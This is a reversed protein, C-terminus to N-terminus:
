SGIAQRIIEALKNLRYPKPLFLVQRSQIQTVDNAYGSTFVVKIEPRRLRISEALQWGSLGGPMVIDTFLLDIIQARGAIELAENGNSAM